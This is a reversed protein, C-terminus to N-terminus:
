SASAGARPTAAQIDAARRKAYYKKDKKSLRPHDKLARLLRAFTSDSKKTAAVYERKWESHMAGVSGFREALIDLAQDLDLPGDDEDVCDEWGAIALSSSTGLDIKELPLAGKKFPEADKMKQCELRVVGEDKSCEIMVDAAGRLASSGRETQGNKRTHHIVLVTASTERRLRDIGDIAEGMDKASNEDAGVMLRALTDVVILDPRFAAEQLTALLQDVDGSKLLNLAEGLYRIDEAALGHKKQYAEVRLKLGFLGEAAIYLVCGPKVTKGSWERGAAICLAFSLAVFTKGCGPEGYFVCFANRPLIGKILWSPEPLAALDAPTLLRFTKGAAGAVPGLVSSHSASVMSM